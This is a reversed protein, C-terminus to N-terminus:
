QHNNVTPADSYIIAESLNISAGPIPNLWKFTVKHKDKPLQYKWTIENRRARHDTPLVATEMLQGDLYVEVNAIYAVDNCRIGGRAVFGIGEFEIEPSSENINGHINIKKVPFHGEFAKEYHVPVPKQCIITVNDGEVKGGGREIM